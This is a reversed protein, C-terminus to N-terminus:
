LTFAAVLLHRYRHELFGVASAPLKDVEEIGWLADISV